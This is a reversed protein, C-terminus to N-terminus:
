VRRPNSEWGCRNVSNSFQEPSVSVSVGLSLTKSAICADMLESLNAYVSNLKGAAM